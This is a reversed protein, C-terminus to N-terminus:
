RKGDRYHLTREYAEAYNTRGQWLDDIFMAYAAEMAMTANYVFRPTLRRTEPDKLGHVGTRFAEDLSTFQSSRLGPTQEYLRTEIVMDLPMNFLRDAFGRLLSEVYDDVVEQPMSRRLKYIDSSLASRAEAMTQNNTTFFRNREQQRAEHEMLIHELEHALLHPTVARNAGKYRVVHNRHGHHWAIQTRASVTLSDDQVLEIEVGGVEELETRRERVLAMLVDYESRAVDIQAKRYLERANENVQKNRADEEQYSDFLADLIEVAAGANGERDELVALNFYSNPYTPASAIARKFYERAQEIEGQQAHLAGLNSLLYPDDPDASAAQRYFESASEPDDRHQLYINGMLLWSWADDPDLRLTQRVLEEAKEVEGIELHAMGLNRRAVVNAAARELVQELRSVAQQYRGRNADSLAQDLLRQGQADLDSEADARILAMADDLAVSVDNGLFSYLSILREVAESSSLDSWDIPEVQDSLIRALPTKFEVM